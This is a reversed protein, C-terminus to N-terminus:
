CDTANLTSLTCVSPPASVTHSGQPQKGHLAKIAMAAAQKDGCRVVAECKEARMEVHGVRVGGWNDFINRIWSGDRGPPLGGVLLNGHTVPEERPPPPPQPPQPQRSPPQEEWGGSARRWPQEALAPNSSGNHQSGERSSAAAAASAASGGTPQQQQQQQSSSSPQLPREDATTGDRGSVNRLIHRMERSIGEGEWDLMAAPNIVGGGRDDRLLSCLSERIFAYDPEDHFSLSHLHRVIDLFVKPLKVGAHHINDTSSPYRLLETLQAEKLALM